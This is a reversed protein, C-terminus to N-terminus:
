HRGAHLVTVLTLTMASAGIIHLEKGTLTMHDSLDRKSM